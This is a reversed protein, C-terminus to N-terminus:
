AQRRPVLNLLALAAYLVTNFGVVLSLAQFWPTSLTSVTIVPGLVLPAALAGQRALQARDVHGWEARRRLLADVFGVVFVALIFEAYALEVLLPLALLRARWGARWVTVTREVVFICTVVIWFTLGFSLVGNARWTVLVLLLYLNLALTAYALGAQQWWYRLTALTLGYTALNELAGRDWRIRQRWLHRWTPMVETITRCERPSVLRAGLTRLALTLENDETLAFPDYVQGPTGPVYQGRMEAVTRLADARFLSGTGSLVTVRRGKRRAITRSYRVYESRQLQGVLGSGGEGFFIGGVAQLAPDERLRSEAEAIFESALVTDADMVLFADDGGAGPLLEALGQNLAGAKRGVNDSTHLVVAGKSVAIEATADTCRDDVVVIEDPPRSQARLSDIAAGITTEEDHAPIVVTIHLREAAGAAPQGFPVPEAAAGGLAWQRAAAPWPIRRRKAALVQSAFAVELAATILVLAVGILAVAVLVAGGPLQITLFSGAHLEITRTTLVPSFWDTSLLAAGLGLAVAAGAALAASTWGLRRNRRYLPDAEDGHQNRRV